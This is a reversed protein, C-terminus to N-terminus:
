FSPLGKKATKIKYTFNFNLFYYVDKSHSYMSTYGDINDSFCYRGGLEVGFNFYSSYILTAGFGLPIVPIFGNTKTVIPNLVTNPKVKYSLGGLGSFVYFDFMSFVSQFSASVGKMLLYSNEGSNKIFYYEGLLAPEFFLSTSEFGRNENSGWTDTSHFSGFTFNARVALNNRIRYRFCAGLNFRTQKFSFDKLGLLNGEKSFGGIDGFFQTMGIGGTVEYRRLKWLQSNGPSSYFFLAAFFILIKRM